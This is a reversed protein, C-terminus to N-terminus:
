SIIFAYAKYLKILYSLRSPYTNLEKAADKQLKHKLLVTKLQEKKYYYFLYYFNINKNLHSQNKYDIPM